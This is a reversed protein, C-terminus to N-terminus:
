RAVAGPRLVTVPPVADIAAQHRLDVTRATFLRRVPIRVGQPLSRSRKM